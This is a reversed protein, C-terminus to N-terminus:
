FHNFYKLVDGRYRFSASCTKAKPIRKLVWANMVTNNKMKVLTSKLEM